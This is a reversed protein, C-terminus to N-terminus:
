LRVYLWPLPRQSPFASKFAKPEINYGGPGAAKYIGYMLKLDVDFLFLRTGKYVKSVLEKKSAPLGLVKYQYCDRKTKSNCMFIMGMSEVNKSSKKKDSTEAKDVDKAAEVDANMPKAKKRNRKRSKGAKKNSKKEEKEQRKAEEEKNDEDKGKNVEEKKNGENMEKKVEIKNEGDTDKKVEEKNGEKMEESGSFITPADEDMKESKPASTETATNNAEDKEKPESESVLVKGEIAEKVM